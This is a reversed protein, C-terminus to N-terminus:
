KGPRTVGLKGLRFQLTFRKLGLCAAASHPGGPVWTSFGRLAKIQQKMPHLNRGAALSQMPSFRQLRCQAPPSQIRQLELAVESHKVQPHWRMASEGDPQLPECRLDQAQGVDPFRHEVRPVSIPQSGSAHISAYLQLGGMVLSYAPAIRWCLRM